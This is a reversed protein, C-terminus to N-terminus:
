GNPIEFTAVGADTMVILKGDDVYMHRPQGSVTGVYMGDVLISKTGQAGNRCDAHGCVPCIPPPPPTIGLTRKLREWLKMDPM